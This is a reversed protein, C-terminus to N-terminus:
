KLDFVMIPSLCYLVEAKGIGRAQARLSGDNTVGDWEWPLRLRDGEDREEGWNREAAGIADERTDWLRHSPLWVGGIRRVFTWRVGPRNFRFENNMAAM